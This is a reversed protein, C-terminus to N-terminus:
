RSYNQFMPCHRNRCSNYGFYEEGCEECACIHFGLKETGCNRIANFVKWQEYSLKHSKIYKEGYKIFIDQITFKTSM